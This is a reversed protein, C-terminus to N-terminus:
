EPQDYTKKLTVTVRKSTRKIHIELTVFNKRYWRKLADCLKEVSSESQEGKPYTLTIAAHTVQLDHKWKPLIKKKFLDEEIPEFPIMDVKKGKRKALAGFLPLYDSTFHTIPCGLAVMEEYDSEQYPFLIPGNRVLTIAKNKM